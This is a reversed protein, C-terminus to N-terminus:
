VELLCHQLVNEQNIISTPLVVSPLAVGSCQEMAEAKAGGELNGGHTGVMIEESSSSHHPLMLYIFKKKGLQKQGDDKIVAISVRLCCKGISKNSQYGERSRGSEEV